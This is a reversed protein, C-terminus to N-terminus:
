KLNFDENLHDMMESFRRLAQKYELNGSLWQTLYFIHLAFLHEALDLSRQKVPQGTSAPYTDEIICALDSLMLRFPDTGSGVPIDRTLFLLEKVILKAFAKNKKHHRFFSLFVEDIKERKTKKTKLTLELNKRVESMDSMSILTLLAIKDKVYGYLTGTAIGAEKAIDRITLDAYGKNQSILTRTANLIKQFVEKRKTERLGAEDRQILESDMSTLFDTIFCFDLSYLLRLKLIM